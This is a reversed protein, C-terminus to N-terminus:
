FIFLNIIALIISTIGIIAYEAMKIKEKMKFSFMFNLSMIIGFLLDELGIAINNMVTKNTLNLIVILFMGTILLIYSIIIIIKTPKKTLPYNITKNDKINNNDKNDMKKQNM